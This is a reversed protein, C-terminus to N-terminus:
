DDDYIEECEHEEACRSCLVMGCSCPVLKSKEFKRGCESCTQTVDINSKRATTVLVTSEETVKNTPVARYVKTKVQIEPSRKEEYIEKKKIILVEQSSVAM